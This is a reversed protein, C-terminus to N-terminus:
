ETPRRVQRASKKGEAGGSVPGIFSVQTKVFGPTLSFEFAVGVELPVHIEVEGVVGVNRPVVAFLVRMTAPVPGLLGAVSAAEGPPVM